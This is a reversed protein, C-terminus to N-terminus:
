LVVLTIINVLGCIQYSRHGQLYLKALFKNEDNEAVDVNQVAREQIYWVLLNLEGYTAVFQANFVSKPICIQISM